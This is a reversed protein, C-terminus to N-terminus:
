TCQFTLSAPKCLSSLVICSSHFTLPWTVASSFYTRFYCNQSWIAKLYFCDKWCSTSGMRPNQSINIFSNLLFLLVFGKSLAKNNSAVLCCCSFSEYFIIRLVCNKKKTKWLFFGICSAPISLAWKVLM